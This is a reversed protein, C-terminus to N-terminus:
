EGKRLELSALSVMTQDSKIEKKLLMLRELYTRQRSCKSKFEEIDGYRFPDGSTEAGVEM